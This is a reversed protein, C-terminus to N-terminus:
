VGRTEAMMGSKALIERIIPTKAEAYANRDDWDRKALEKKLNAYAARDEASDRLRDRFRIYRDIARAGQPYVHIHVDRGPTRLMRHEEDAPERVRLQYGQEVLAPVYSSEDAPDRVVLLIDIVPKASLGRVATSGIHEVRSAVDGLASRIVAEHARYREPWAEDYDVISIPGGEIGGILTLGAAAHDDEMARQLRLTLPFCEERVSGDM